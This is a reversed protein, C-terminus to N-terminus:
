AIMRHVVAKGVRYKSDSLTIDNEFSGMRNPVRLCTAGGARNISVHILDVCRLRCEYVSHCLLCVQTYIHTCKMIQSLVRNTTFSQRRGIM